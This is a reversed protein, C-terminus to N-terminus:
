IAVIRTLPSYSTLGVPSQFRFPNLKILLGCDASMMAILLRLRTAHVQNAGTAPAWITYLRLLRVTVQLAAVQNWPHHLYIMSFMSIPSLLSLFCDNPRKIAFVHCGAPQALGRQPHPNSAPWFKAVRAWVQPLGAPKASGHNVRCDQLTMPVLAPIQLHPSTSIRSVINLLIQYVWFLFHTHRLPLYPMQLVISYYTIYILSGPEIRGLGLLFIGFILM